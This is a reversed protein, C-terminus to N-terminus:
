KQSILFCKEIEFYAITDNPATTTACYVACGSGIGTSGPKFGTMPCIKNNVTQLIPSNLSLPRSHDMKFFREKWSTRRNSVQQHILDSKNHHVKPNKTAIFLQGIAYFIGFFLRFILYASYFTGLVKQITHDGIIFGSM